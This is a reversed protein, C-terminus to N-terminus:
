TSQCVKGKTSGAGTEQDGLVESGQGQGRIRDWHGGRGEVGGGGSAM